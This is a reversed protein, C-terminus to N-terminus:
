KKSGLCLVSGDSLSLYLKGQTAAMGDWAPPVDLKYEALKQGTEASVAWLVGSMRGEYAKALDDAPFEVPTGAVFLTKDAMAMAKGTLAAANAVWGRLFILRRM